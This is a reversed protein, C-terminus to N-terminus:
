FGEEAVDALIQRCEVATAHVHRYCSCDNHCTAAMLLLLHVIHANGRMLDAMTHMETTGVPVNKVGACQEYCESLHVKPCAGSERRIVAKLVSDIVAPTGYYLATLHLRPDRYVGGESQVMRQLEDMREARRAPTAGDLVSAYEDSWFDLKLECVQPEAMANVYADSAVRVIHEDCMRIQARVSVTYCVMSRLMAWRERLWGWTLWCFACHMACVASWVTALLAFRAWEGDTASVVAYAGLWVANVVWLVTWVFYLYLPLPRGYKNSMRGEQWRCVASFLRWMALGFSRSWDMPVRLDAYHVKEWDYRNPAALKPQESGGAAEKRARCDPVNTVSGDVCRVNLPRAGTPSTETTGSAGTSEVHGQTTVSTMGPEVGPRPGATPYTGEARPGAGNEMEVLAGGTECLSPLIGSATKPAPLGEPAHKREVPCSSGTEQGAELKSLSIRPKLGNDVSHAVTYVVRGDNASPEAATSATSTTRAPAQSTSTVTGVGGPTSAVVVVMSPTATVQDAM